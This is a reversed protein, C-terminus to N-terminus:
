AHRPRRRDRERQMAADAAEIAAVSETGPAVLVSGITVGLRLVAPPHEPGVDIEIPSRMLWAIRDVLRGLAERDLGSAVLVFEDGGYRAVLDTGRLATGLRQGVEVLALDGVRHGHNDNVTSFDDVDVFVVGVRVDRVSANSLAAGLREHLALRNPLGTLADHTAAHALRDRAAALATIDAAAAVLGQVSGDDILDVVTMNMPHADGEVDVLEAEFSVRGRGDTVAMLAESVTLVRAVSVFDTLPRGLVGELPHGLLRTFARNASRIQGEPSLVLAISPLVELVASAATEDGAAVEWRRRETLDRLGLVVVDDGGFQAARGRVEVRRFQGSHDRIRIEILTGSTKQQVSTLSVLATTLDDPHVLRTVDSGVLDAKTWGFLAEAVDNGWLLVGDASVVVVPDPLSSLLGQVDALQSDDITM